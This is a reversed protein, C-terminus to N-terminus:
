KHTFLSSLGSRELFYNKCYEHGRYDVCSFYRSGIIAIGQGIVMSLVLLPIFVRDPMAM